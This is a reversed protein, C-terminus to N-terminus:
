AAEWQNLRWHAEGAQAALRPNEPWRERAKEIIDLAARPQGEFNHAKALEYHSLPNDPYATAIRRDRSLTDKWTASFAWSLYLWFALLLASPLVLYRHRFSPRLHEDLRDSVQIMLGAIALHLGFIPLYMYRDAAIFRRASPALLFPALLIVFTVLGIFVTPNVRRSIFPLCLFAGLAVTIGFMDLSPTEAERVTDTFPPPVWPSLKTPVIFSRLYYWSGFLFNQGPSSNFESEDNVFGASRSTYFAGAIGASSLALLIVLTTTSRRSLKGTETFKVVAAALPITPIVKSLLAFAWALIALFQAALRPLLAVREKLADKKSIAVPDGDHRSRKRAPAARNQDRGLFLLVTTLSFVTALLMMRGSVWAVSEMAFPHCAFMLGTLVAISDRGSIRRALLTALAANIAHLIVNTLHFGFPDVGFRSENRPSALAYNAQFTLMPIPQYLDGHVIGLLRGANEWSPHSVLFHDTVFRQDDGSTFDAHLTPWGFALALAGAPSLMLFMRPIPKM